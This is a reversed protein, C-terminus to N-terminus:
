LAPSAYDSSEPAALRYRRVGWWATLADGHLVGDVM